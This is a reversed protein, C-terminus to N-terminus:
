HSLPTCAYLRGGKRRAKFPNSSWKGYPPVTDMHGYFLVPRGRGKREALLNFRRPALPQRRVQFRNKKLEQELFEALKRERPFVSNISILKELLHLAEM